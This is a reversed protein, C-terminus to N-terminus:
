APSGMLKLRHNHYSLLATILTDRVGKILSKTSMFQHLDTELIKVIFESGDSFIKSRGNLSLYDRNYTMSSHDKPLVRVFLLLDNV